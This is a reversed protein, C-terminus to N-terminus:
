SPSRAPPLRFVDVRQALTDIKASLLGAYIISIVLLANQLALSLLNGGGPMNRSSRALRFFLPRPWTSGLQRSYCAIGFGSCHGRVMHLCDGSRRSLTRFETNVTLERLGPSHGSVGGIADHCTFFWPDIGSYFWGWNLTGAVETLYLEM